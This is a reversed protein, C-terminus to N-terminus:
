VYLSQNTVIYKMLLEPIKSCLNELQLHGTEIAATEIEKSLKIIKLISKVFDGSSIDLEQQAKDLISLCEENTQANCWEEVYLYINHSLTHESTLYYGLNKEELSYTKNWLDNLEEMLKIGNPINSLSNNSTSTEDYKKSSQDCFISLLCALYTPDAADIIKDYNIDLYSAFSIPNTEYLHSTYIGRNTIALIGDNSLTICESRELIDMAAEVEVNLYELAQNVKYEKNTVRRNLEIMKQFLVADHELMLYEKCLNYLENKIKKAMKNKVMGSNLKSELEIYSRIAYQPTKLNSVRDQLQKQESWLIELEEKLKNAYTLQAPASLSKSSTTSIKQIIDCYGFSCQERIQNLNMQYTIHYNSCVNLPKGSLTKTMEGVPLMATPIIICHGCTDIGRRGARGAMQTYEHPYLPRLEGTTRKQLETFIVTRTPMNVGVAFTETAFLLKVYGKGDMIEVLERLIPLMGAHHYAIGKSLLRIMNSCEPNNLFDDFNPLKKSLIHRCEKNITREMDHGEREDDTFLSCTLTQYVQHALTETRKRSFVFCLVPLLNKRKILTLLSNLSQSLNNRNTIQPFAQLASNINSYLETDFTTGEGQKIITLDGMYKEIKTIKDQTLKKLNKEPIDPIYTYHILPVVRENTPCLVVEKDTISLIWKCLSEPNSITASLMVMICSKPLLMMSQEWAVGRDPDSIYHVEDFVVAALDNDYDMSFRSAGENQVNTNSRNQLSNALVETTMILVQAEKNDEIDGTVIGFSIHPYKHRFDHLKQNSLAKIPSTYIVRKGQETFYQIAFEAPVTKGSGTHATVLCHQNNKIADIAKNQFPSLEFSFYDSM